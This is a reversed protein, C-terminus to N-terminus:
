NDKNRDIIEQYDKKSFDPHVILFNLVYEKKEESILTVPSEIYEAETFPSMVYGREYFEKMLPDSYIKVGKYEDIENVGIM